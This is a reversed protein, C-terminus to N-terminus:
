PLLHVKGQHKGGIIRGCLSHDSIYNVQLCTGNCLGNVPDLNQLCMVSCDIKLSLTHPPLSANEIGNLIEPNIVDCAAQEVPANVIMKFEIQGTMQERLISENIAVVDYNTTALIARDKLFGGTVTPHLSDLLYVYDILAISINAEELLADASLLARM